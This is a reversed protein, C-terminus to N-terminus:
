LKTLNTRVAKIDEIGEVVYENATDVNTEITDLGPNQELLLSKLEVYCTNLDDMDVELKKLDTLKERSMLKELEITNADYEGLAVKVGKDVEEM